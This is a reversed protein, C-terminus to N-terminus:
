RWHLDCRETKRVGAVRRSVPEGTHHHPDLAAIRRVVETQAQRSPDLSQDAAKKPPAATITIRSPKVDLIGVTIM